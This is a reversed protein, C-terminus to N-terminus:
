DNFDDISILASIYDLAIIRKGDKNFEYYTNGGAVQGNNRVNGMVVKTIHINNTPYRKSMTQFDM